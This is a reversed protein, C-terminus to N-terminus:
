RAEQSTWMRDVANITDNRNFGLRMATEVLFLAHPRLAELAGVRRGAVVMHVGLDRLILGEKELLSYAKAITVPNIGLEIAVARVSPLRDGAALRGSATLQRVQDVLQRYIPTGSTPELAFM